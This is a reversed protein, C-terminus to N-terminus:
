RRDGATVLYCNSPVQERLGSLAASNTQGYRCAATVDAFFIPCNWDEERKPRYDVRPMLPVVKGNVELAPLHDFLPIPKSPRYVLWVKDAYAWPAFKWTEVTLGDRFGHVDLFRQPLRGRGVLKVTKDQGQQDLSLLRAPLSPDRAAALQERIEPMRFETRCGDGTPQWASLDLPFRSPNEPPLGKFVENVDVIVVSEGRVEVELMGSPGRQVPARTPYVQRIGTSSAGQPMRLRFLRRGSGYNLLFIAGRGGSLKSVVCADASEFCVRASRLAAINDQVWAVYKRGFVVEREPMKQELHGCTLYPTFASVAALTDRFGIVDHFNFSVGCYGHPGYLFQQPEPDTYQRPHGWNSYHTFFYLLGYEPMLYQYKEQWGRRSHRFGLFTVWDSSFASIDNGATDTPHNVLVERQFQPGYQAMGLDCSTYATKERAARFYRAANHHATYTDVTSFFDFFAGGFGREVYKDLVALKREVLTTDAWKEELGGADLTGAVIGYGRLLALNTKVVPSTLALEAYAPMGKGMADDGFAIVHVGLKRALEIYPTAAPNDIDIGWQGWGANWECSSSQKDHAIKRLYLFTKYWLWGPYPEAEEDEFVGLYWPESDLRGPAVYAMKTNGYVGDSDVSYFWGGVGAFLGGRDLSVLRPRDFKGPELVKVQGGPIALKGYAVRDFEIGRQPGNVAMEREIWFQDRRIKYTIAVTVQDRTEELVVSSASPLASVAVTFQHPRDQRALWELERDTGSRAVFGLQDGELTCPRGTLRNTVATVVGSAPSVQVELFANGLIIGGDHQRAFCAAAPGELKSPMAAHVSCDLTRQEGAPSDGAARVVLVLGLSQLFSRRSLALLKLSEPKQM